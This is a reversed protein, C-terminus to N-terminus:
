CLFSLNCLKLWVRRMGNISIHVTNHKLKTQSSFLKLPLRNQSILETSLTEHFKQNIGENYQSISETQKSKGLGNLQSSTKRQQIMTFIMTHNLWAIM